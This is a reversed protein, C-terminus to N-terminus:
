HAFAALLILAAVVTLGATVALWFVVVRIAADGGSRAQAVEEDIAPPQRAM